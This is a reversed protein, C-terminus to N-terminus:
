TESRYSRPHFKVMYKEKIAEERHISFMQPRKHMMHWTINKTPFGSGFEIVCAGKGKMRQGERTEGCHWSHARVSRTLISRISVLLERDIQCESFSSRMCKKLRKSATMRLTCCSPSFFLIVDSPLETGDMVKPETAVGEDRSEVKNVKERIGPQIPRFARFALTAVILRVPLCLHRFPLPLVM